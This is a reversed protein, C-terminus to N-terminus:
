SKVRLIVQYTQILCYAMFRTAMIMSLTVLISELRVWWIVSTQLVQFNGSTTLLTHQWIVMSRTQALLGKYIEEKLGSNERRQITTLMNSIVGDSTILSLMMQIIRLFVWKYIRFHNQLKRLHICIIIGLTRQLIIVM